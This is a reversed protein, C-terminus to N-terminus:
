VAGLSCHSNSSEAFVEICLVPVNGVGALQVWVTLMELGFVDADNVM